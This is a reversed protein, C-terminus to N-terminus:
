ISWRIEWQKIRYCHKKIHEVYVAILQLSSNLPSEWGCVLASLMGWHLIRRRSNKFFKSTLYNLHGWRSPGKGFLSRSDRSNKGGKETSHPYLYHGAPLKTEPRAQAQSEDFAEAASSKSEKLCSERGFGLLKQHIWKWDTGRALCM